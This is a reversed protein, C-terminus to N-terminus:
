IGFYKFTLESGNETFIGDGYESLYNLIDIVVTSGIVNNGGSSSTLNYGHPDKATTKEVKVTDDNHEGVVAEFSGQVTLSDGYFPLFAEFSYKEAKKPLTLTMFYVNKRDNKSESLTVDLLIKKDKEDYKLEFYVLKARDEEPDDHM